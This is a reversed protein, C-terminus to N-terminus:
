IGYYAVDVTATSGIGIFKLAIFDGDYVLTEDALLRMGNASDPDVGDDRFRVEGRPRIMVRRLRNPNPLNPLGIAAGTTADFKDHGLPSYLIVVGQEFKTM